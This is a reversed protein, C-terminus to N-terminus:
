NVNDCKKEKETQSELYVFEMLIARLRIISKNIDEVNKVMQDIREEILSKDILSAFETQRVILNHLLIDLCLM